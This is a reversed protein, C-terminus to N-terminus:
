ASCNVYSCENCSMMLLKLVTVQRGGDPIMKLTSGQTRQAMQVERLERKNSFLLLEGSSVARFPKLNAFSHDSDYPWVFSDFLIVGTFLLPNAGVTSECIAESMMVHLVSAAQSFSRFSAPNPQIKEPPCRTVGILPDPVCRNMPEGRQASAIAICDARVAAVVRPNLDSLTKESLEVSMLAIWPLAWDLSIMPMTESM